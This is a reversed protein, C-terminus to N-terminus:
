NYYHTGAARLLRSLQLLAQGAPTEMLAADQSDLSRLISFGHGQEGAALNQEIATLAKLWGAKREESWLEGESRELEIKATTLGM